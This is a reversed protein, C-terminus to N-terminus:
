LGLASALRRWGTEALSGSPRGFVGIDTVVFDLLGVRFKDFLRLRVREGLVEEEIIYPEPSKVPAMKYSEFVAVSRAGLERATALLPLTGVKNFAYGDGYYGDLGVVAYDFEVSGMASDPLPVVEVHRRYDKLAERAEEGPRSELIYLRRICGAKIQIFRSVARSYSVTITTAPCEIGFSSIVDDLKTQAERVYLALRRAVERLDLGKRGAAEITLIAVDISAMGPRIRRAEELVEESAGREAIINLIEELYWSAGRIKEEKLHKFM